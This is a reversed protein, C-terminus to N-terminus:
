RLLIEEFLAIARPDESQGLWFLAKERVRPNAHTRAVRLLHPVGEENPLQSLAFVAQEKVETEPDNELAEGIAQVAKDSAMQSLWFVAKERVEPDRDSKAARIVVEAAQPAAHARLAVFVDDADGHRGVLGALFAVSEEPAVDTLWHVRRGGADIACDQSFARLEDVRRAAVRVLIRAQTRELAIPGRDANVFAGRGELRCGGSKGHGADRVSSFCCMSGREGTPVEWAIWAPEGGSDRLAEVTAGLRGAPVPQSEVKANLLGPVPTAGAILLALLLNPGM